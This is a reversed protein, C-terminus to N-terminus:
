MYLEAGFKEIDTKKAHVIKELFGKLKILKPTVKLVKYFQKKYIVVSDSGALKELTKLDIKEGKNRSAKVPRNWDFM